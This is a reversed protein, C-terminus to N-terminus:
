PVPVLILRIGFTLTAEDDAQSHEFLQHLPLIMVHRQRAVVTGIKGVDEALEKHLM